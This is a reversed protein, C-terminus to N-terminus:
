LCFLASQASIYHSFLRCQNANPWTECGHRPYNNKKLAFVHLLSVYKVGPLGSPLVKRVGTLSLIM